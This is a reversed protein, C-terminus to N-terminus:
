DITGAYARLIACLTRLPLNVWPLGGAATEQLGGSDARGQWQDGVGRLVRRGAGILREGGDHPQAELM